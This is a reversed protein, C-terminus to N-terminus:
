GSVDVGNEREQRRLKAWRVTIVTAILLAAGIASLIAAPYLAEPDSTRGSLFFFAGGMFTLILGSTLSTALRARSLRDSSADATDLFRQGGRTQLFAAFEQSSEFRELIRTRLELEAQQRERRRRVSMWVIWGIFLFSAVVIGLTMLPLTIADM